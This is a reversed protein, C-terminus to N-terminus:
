VGQIINLLVTGTDGLWAYHTALDPVGVYETKSFGVAVGNAANTEASGASTGFAILGYNTGDLNEVRLIAADTALAESQGSVSTTASKIASYSSPTFAGSVTLEGKSNRVYGNVFDNM